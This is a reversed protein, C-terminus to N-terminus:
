DIIYTAAEASSVCRCTPDFGGFAVTARVTKDSGSRNVRVQIKPTGQGSIIEGNLVAWNYTVEGAGSIEATFEITEGNKANERGVVQVFPCECDCICIANMVMIRASLTTGVPKNRRHPTVMIEYTGPMLGSVDWDIERGSTILHGGSVTYRYEIDSRPDPIESRVHVTFDESAKDGCDVGKPCPLKFVTKDLVLKNTSSKAAQASVIAVCFLLFLAPLLLLKYTM